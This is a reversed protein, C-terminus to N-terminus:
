SIEEELVSEESLEHAVQNRVWDEALVDSEAMRAEIALSERYESAAAAMTWSAEIGRSEIAARIDSIGVRFFEKRPNVKNIQAKVFDLHLARELAPADDSWIMAHVDFGFPVSADGLERVRDLPELRRTMGVKFVDEGFSGVNSIIYVHGARTQQAMSLARQSRAEAELLRVQLAQLDAEFKQKQDESAKAVQQRVKEMARELMDEEKAADKLARDIERRVREEERIRERIARQEERERERLVHVATAWRLEELRASLYEDTICANRFAAGNSNVLACADRIQRELTGHNDAKSRTLISDVKGNFADIVFRIATSRRAPEVYDCTAARGSEIMLQTRGRALKLEKGAEDFAYTEALEDLLSFTPKLYRDGYGEIVNRMATATERLSDADKLARYADGAIQSASEKANAIIQAAQQNAATILEELKERRDRAAALSQDKIIKAESVLFDRERVGEARIRAVEARVDTIARYPALLRLEEHLREIELQLNAQEVNHLRSASEVESRHSEESKVAASQVEVLKSNLSEIQKRLDSKQAWFVIAAIVACVLLFGTM